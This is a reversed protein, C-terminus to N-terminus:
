DGSKKMDEQGSDNTGQVMDKIMQNLGKKKVMTMKDETIVISVIM